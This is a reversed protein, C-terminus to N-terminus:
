HVVWLCLALYVSRLGVSVFQSLPNCLRNTLIPRNLRVFSQVEVAGGRRRFANMTDRDRGKTRDSLAAFFNKQAVIAILVVWHM